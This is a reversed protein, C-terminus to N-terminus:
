SRKSFSIWTAEIEEEKQYHLNKELLDIKERVDKRLDAIQQHENTKLNRVFERTETVQEIDKINENRIVALVDQVTAEIKQTSAVIKRKIQTFLVEDLANIKKILADRLEKVRIVFPGMLLTDEFFLEELEDKAKSHSALLSTYM